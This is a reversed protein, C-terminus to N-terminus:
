DANKTLLKKFIYYGMFASADIAMYERTPQHIKFTWDHKVLFNPVSWL